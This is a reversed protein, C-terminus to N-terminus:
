KNQVIKLLSFFCKKFFKLLLITDIISFHRPSDQYFRCTGDAGAYRKWHRSIINHFLNSQLMSIDNTLIEKTFLNIGCVSESYLSFIPSVAEYRSNDSESFNSMQSYPFFPFSADEKKSWFLHFYNVIELNTIIYGRTSSTAM